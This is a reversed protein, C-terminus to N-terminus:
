VVSVDAQKRRPGRAFRVGQMFVLLEKQESPSMENLLQMMEEAEAKQDARLLIEMQGTM